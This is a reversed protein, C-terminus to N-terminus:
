ILDELVGLEDILRGKERGVRLIHDSLYKGLSKQPRELDQDDKGAHHEQVREENFPWLRDLLLPFSLFMESSTPLLARSPRHPHM